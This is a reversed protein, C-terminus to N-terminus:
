KNIIFNIFSVLHRLFVYSLFFVVLVFGIFVIWSGTIDYDVLYSVLIFNAIAHLIIGFIRLALSNFTRTQKNM